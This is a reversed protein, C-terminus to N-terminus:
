PQKKNGFFVGLEPQQPSYIGEVIYISIYIFIYM